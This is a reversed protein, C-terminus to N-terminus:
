RLYKPDGKAWGTSVEISDKRFLRVIRGIETRQRYLALFAAYDEFLEDAADFSHVIMVAHDANFRYAELLASAFQNVLQYRINGIQAVALGLLSLLFELRDTKAITPKSYWSGVTPGFPESAAAKVTISVLGGGAAKALAFLDCQSPPEKRPPLYVKHEPIALLMEATRLDKNAATSFLTKVEDPFGNADQWCHAAAWASFGPHWHREPEALLQRWDDANKAPLYIRTKQRMTKGIPVTSSSAIGFGARLGLRQTPASAMIGSIGFSELEQISRQAQIQFSSSIKAVM